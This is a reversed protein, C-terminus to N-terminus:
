GRRQRGSGVARMATSVEGQGRVLRDALRAEFADYIQMELDGNPAQTTQVQAPSSNNVKVNVVPASAAAGSSVVGLDGASNRRLPMIAEPGAEGMLGTGKAFPFLTPRSVISNTFAGGQAFPVINGSAFANGKANATASGGGWNFFSSFNFGKGGFLSNLAMDLMKDLVRDLANQLAEAGSKGARLDSLFGKLADRGLSQIETLSDRVTTLEAIRKANAIYAIGEEGTLSIGQRRLEQEARMVAILRTREDASMTIASIELELMRLQENQGYVMGLARGKVAEANVSALATGYEALRQTLTAQDTVGIAILRLKEQELANRRQLLESRQTESLNGERAAANVSAEVSAAERSQVVKTALEKNTKAIEERMLRELVVSQDEGTSRSIQIAQLRLKAVDASASGLSRVAAEQRAISQVNDNSSRRSEAGARAADIEIQKGALRAANLREQPTSAQGLAENRALAEATARREAVTVDNAAKMRIEAANNAKIQELTLGATAKAYDAAQAKAREMAVSQEKIQANIDAFQRADMGGGVDGAAILVNRRQTLEAISKEYTSVAATAMRYAMEDRQAGQLLGDASSVRQNGEVRKGRNRAAEEEVRLTAELETRRQRLGAIEAKLQYEKGPASNGAQMRQELTALESNIEALRERDTPGIIADGISQKVRNGLRGAKDWLQEWKTQANEAGETARAVEELLLKQARLKDGYDSATRIARVTTSDLAGLREALAEAGRSPDALAKALEKAATPADQGTVLSFDKTVKSLQPLSTAAIQGLRTYEAAILRAKTVSIDAADASEKAFQNLADGTVGAARGVGLLSNSLTQRESSVSFAAYVAAVGAAVAALPGVAPAIMTPLQKFFGGVSGRSAAFIDYIQTGQQVLVTLPAQGSALSVGVDQLQRSLNILEHRALGMGSLYKSNATFAGELAAKTDDHVKNIGSITVEYQRGILSGRAELAAAEKLAKNRREENVLLPNYVQNLKAVSEADADLFAAASVRAGATSDYQYGVRHVDQLLGQVHNARAAAKESVSARRDIEAQLDDFYATFAAASERASRAAGGVLRDNLAQLFQDAIWQARAKALGATGGVSGLFADASSEASKAPAAGIGFTASYRAQAEQAQALRRTAATARDAVEATISHHSNIAQVVPALAVYGQRALQVADAVQGFKRYVGDLQLAARAPDMGRDLANGVSRIASEFKAAQGYGEIYSRSLSAMGPVVRKASADIEALSQGVAKASAVMAEDAGTKQAAARVYQAVDMEASVRLSSLKVTM